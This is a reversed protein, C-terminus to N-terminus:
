AVLKLLEENYPMQSIAPQPKAPGVDPQTCRPGVSRRSSSVHGRSSTAFAENPRQPKQRGKIKGPDAFLGERVLVVRLINHMDAFSPARKHRYWPARPLLGPYLKHGCQCFWAVIVAYTVFAFPATREVAQRTRCQPREFGLCQKSDRFAVEIAWRLAYAELIAEPTMSLDTSFFCDDKRKGRPDRVVVIRLPRSGASPYWLADVTKYLVVVNKGYLQVTARRWKTNSQAMQKPSPLRRGKKRPRGNQGPKRQPPEAYLAATMTMRSILDTKEPLHRTVSKGGYATDGLVRIARTKDLANRLVDLMEVALEPRTRYEHETAAGTTKRERKGRAGRGSRKKKSRYLRWYVPVAVPRRVLPVAIVMSLVVWNHGFCVANPLWHLPDHHMNAGWIHKGSKRAITDDVVVTLPGPLAFPLLLGLLCTGLADAQWVARSFFRYYASFHKPAGSGLARLAMSTMAHTGALIWGMLLAVFNEFTPQNFVPACHVLIGDLTIQKAM